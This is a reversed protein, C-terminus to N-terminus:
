LRAGNVAGRVSVLREAVAPVDPPEGHWGLRFVLTAGLDRFERV